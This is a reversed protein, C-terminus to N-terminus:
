FDQDWTSEDDDYEDADACPAFLARKSAMSRAFEAPTKCKPVYPPKVKQLEVERLDIASFIHHGKVQTAGGIGLRNGPTFQLLSQVFDVTAPPTRPPMEVEQDRSTLINAFIIEPGSDHDDCFPTMGCLLEFALIGVAWWDVMRDYGTHTIVEPAMYEPTGCLTMTKGLVFKAFGLDCIKIYGAEDLLVNEPKLDRYVVNRAHLHELAFCVCALIFRYVTPNRFLSPERVMKTHLEGGLLPEFLFYLYKRDRYTGHLRIIFASDCMTLIQREARVAEQLKSRIIHSKSITKLAFKQGTAPDLELTVLGFAGRGLIGLRDLTRTGLTPDLKVESRCHHVRPTGCQAHCPSRMPQERELRSLFGQLRPARDATYKAFQLLDDEAARKFDEATLHGALERFTAGDLVLCHVEEVSCARVSFESPCGRLLAREGFHLPSRLMALEEEDEWAADGGVRRRTMICEGQTLIYWVVQQEGERILWDGQQFTATLFNQALEEKEQSLLGKLLDVQGLHHIAHEVRDQHKSGMIRRFEAQSVCWVVSDERAVATATRPAHYLLALEGFCEGHRRIGLVSAQGNLDKTSLSASLSADFRALVDAECGLTPSSGHKALHHYEKDATRIEEQSLLNPLGPYDYKDALPSAASTSSISEQSTFTGTNNSRPTPAWTVHRGSKGRRQERAHPSGSVLETAERFDNTHALKQLFKEKRHRRRESESAVMFSPGALTGAATIARSLSVGGLVAGQGQDLRLEFSGFEVIYLMGGYEGRHDVVTGAKVDLHEAADCMKQVTEEQLNVLSRLNANARLAGAIFRRQEQDKESTGAATGKRPVWRSLPQRKPFSLHSRLGFDEFERATMSLTVLGHGAVVRAPSRWIAGGGSQLVKEGFYDGPRLLQVVITAGSDDEAHVEAWGEAVLSFERLVEGRLLLEQGEQWVQGRLERALIPYHARPLHRFLPVKELFDIRRRFEEVNGAARGPVKPKGGGGRGHWFGELCACIGDACPAVIGSAGATTAGLRPMAGLSARAM